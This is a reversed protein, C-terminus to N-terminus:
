SLATQVLLVPALLQSGPVKGCRGVLLLWQRNFCRQPLQIFPHMWVQKCVEWSLLHTGSPVLCCCYSGAHSNHGVRKFWLLPRWKGQTWHAHM